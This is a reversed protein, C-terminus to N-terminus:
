KPVFARQPNCVDAIRWVNRRINLTVFTQVREAKCMEACTKVCKTLKHCVGCMGVAKCMDVAACKCVHGRGQVHSGICWVGRPHAGAGGGANRWRTFDGSTIGCGSGTSRRSSRCLCGRGRPVVAVLHRAACVDVVGLFAGRQFHIYIPLFGGSYFFVFFFLFFHAFHKYIYINNSSKYHM